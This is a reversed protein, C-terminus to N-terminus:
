QAKPSFLHSSVPFFYLVFYVALRSCVRRKTMKNTIRTKVYAVRVKKLMTIMGMATVEQLQIM